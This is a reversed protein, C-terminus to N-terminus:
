STPPSEDRAGPLDCEADYAKSIAPWVVEACATCLDVRRSKLEKPRVRGSDPDPKVIVLALEGVPKRPDKCRDCVIM